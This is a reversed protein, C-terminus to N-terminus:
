LLLGAPIIRFAAALVEAAEADPPHEPRESYPLFQLRPPVLEEQPRRLRLASQKPRTEGNSKSCSKPAAM